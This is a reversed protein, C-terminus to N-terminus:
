KLEKFYFLTDKPFLHPHFIQIYDKLVKDVRVAGSEFFDNAQGNMRNANSYIKGQQFVSLQGYLFNSHLLEKKSSFNWVNVWFHANKSKSFVEEFSVPFARKETNEKYIYDVRADALFNAVFTRGGPIFWQNGYMQGALVRYIVPEKLTMKKLQNYEKEIASYVQNSKKEAGLIIGFVKIYAAKELPKEELYEDLFLVKVKNKTLVSYINEFTPNYNTLVVDPKLALIKEVDYKQDTGVSKIKGKKIRDRIEESFVYKEGAIGVVKEIEGLELIYGLLTTNLVLIKRYPLENKDMKYHFKGSKLEIWYNKKSFSVRESIKSFDNNIQNDSKKCHILSLFLLYTFIKKTKM